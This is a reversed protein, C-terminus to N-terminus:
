ETCTYTCDLMVLDEDKCSAIYLPYMLVIKIRFAQYM